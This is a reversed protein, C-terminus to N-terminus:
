YMKTSLIKTEKKLKLDLAKQQEAAWQNHNYNINTYDEKIDICSIYRWFTQLGSLNIAQKQISWRLNGNQSMPVGCVWQYWQWVILTLILEVSMCVWQNGVADSQILHSHSFCVTTTLYTLITWNKISVLGM